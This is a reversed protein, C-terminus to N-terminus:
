DDQGGESEGSEPLEADEIRGFNRRLPFFDADEPLLLRELEPHERFRVGYMDYVEREFWNAAGYIGTLTPAEYNADEASPDADGECAVEAQVLQRDVAQLSNFSYCLRMTQSETRRDECSLMELIYGADAFATAIAVLESVAARHKQHFGTAQYDAAESHETIGELSTMLASTDSM